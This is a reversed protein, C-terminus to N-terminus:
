INQIVTMEDDDDTIVESVNSFRYVVQFLRYPDDYDVDLMDRKSSAEMLAARFTERDQALYGADAATIIIEEKVDQM